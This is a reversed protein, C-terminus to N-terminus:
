IESNHTHTILQYVNTVKGEFARGDFFNKDSADQISLQVGQFEPYPLRISATAPCEKNEQMLLGYASVLAQARFKVEHGGIGYEPYLSQYSTSPVKKGVHAGNLRFM